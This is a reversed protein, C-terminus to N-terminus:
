LCWIAEMAVPWSMIYRARMSFGLNGHWIRVSTGAEDNPLVITFSHVRVGSEKMTRWGGRAPVRGWPRSGCHRLGSSLPCKDASDILPSPLAAQDVAIESKMPMHALRGCEKLGFKGATAQVFRVNGFGRLSTAPDPLDAPRCGAFGGSMRCIPHTTRMRAGRVVGSLCWFSLSSGANGFSARRARRRAARRSRASCWISPNGM